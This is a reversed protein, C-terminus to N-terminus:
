EGKVCIVLCFTAPRCCAQAKSVPLRSRWTVGSTMSPSIYRVPPEVTNASSGSVPEGTQLNSALPGTLLRPTAYQGPSAVM